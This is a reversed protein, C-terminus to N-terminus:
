LRDSKIMLRCWCRWFFHWIRFFPECLFESPYSFALRVDRNLRIINKKLKGANDSNNGRSDYKGFNGGCMTEHLITRGMREDASVILFRDKLAFVEHMVYMMGQAFRYMGTEKLLHTDAVREDDTFGQRLVYYYDLMQRLGIGEHGFHNVIHSLQFIRNFAPTPVSVRGVGDPLNVRNFFQEDAHLTFYRQLRRNHLFNQLFAPRYHMEVPSGNFPPLEVHHYYFEINQYRKKVFQLARKVGGDTWVDIDGSMRMRADPYMIANGQGKLLCCKFGARSLSMVVKVANADAIINIRKIKECLAFWKFVIERPPQLRQPLREVGHFVVGALTQKVSMTYLETWDYPTVNELISVDDSSLEKSESIALRILAFFKREIDSTVM